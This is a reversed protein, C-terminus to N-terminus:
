AGGAFVSDLADPLARYGTLDHRCSYIAEGIPTTQFISAMEIAQTAILHSTPKDLVPWGSETSYIKEGVWSPHHRLWEFHPVHGLVTAGGGDWVDGLTLEFPKLNTMGSPIIDEYARNLNDYWQIAEKYIAPFRLAAFVYVTGDERFAKRPMRLNIGAVAKGVASGHEAGSTGNVDFGSVWQSEQYCLEPRFDIEPSVSMDTRSGMIESYRSSIFNRFAENRLKTHGAQIDYMNITAGSTDIDFETDANDHLGSVATGWSKLHGIRLGYSLDDGQAAPPTTESEATWTPDKFWQNYIRAYDAWVHLPYPGENCLNAHFKVTSSGVTGFTIAEKGGTEMYTVWDSTYTHRYPCHFVFLDCKVDVALPRRLQALRVLINSNLELSDGACVPVRMLGTLRGIKTSQIVQHTLDVVQRNGM